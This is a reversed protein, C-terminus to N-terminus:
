SEWDHNNQAGVLFIPCHFHVIGHETTHHSASMYSEKSYDGIPSVAQGEELFQTQAIYDWGGPQFHAGLEVLGSLPSAEQFLHFFTRSGKPHHSNNFTLSPPIPRM